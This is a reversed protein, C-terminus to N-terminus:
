ERRDAKGAERQPDVVYLSRRAFLYRYATGPLIRPVLALQNWLLTALPVGANRPIMGTSHQVVLSLNWWVAALAAAITVKRPLRQQLRSVAAALGVACLPLSGVFLRQGFSHGFAVAYGSIFWVQALVALAMGRARGDSKALIALGAFAPVLIPTWVFLGHFSSFLVGTLHPAFPSFRGSSSIVGFPTPSGNIVTWAGVQPAFVLAFGLALAAASSAWRSLARLDRVEGALWPASLPAAVTLVDQWRVSAVLGAALGVVFAARPEFGYRLWTWLFLAVAFFSPAHSMPPTVYLYFLLNSGFWVLLTAVFAASPSSFRRASAEALFLGLIGYIMSALCVVSLDLKSFGPPDSGLGLALEAGVAALYFPSWLIATGIPANNPVQGAPTRLELLGGAFRRYAEPDRDVFWRYENAFALDRDFVASRLHAFYQIEDVAYLRLTTLPAAALAILLLARRHRDRLWSRPM